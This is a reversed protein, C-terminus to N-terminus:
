LGLRERNYAVAKAVGEAFTYKPEWGLVTKAKACHLATHKIDGKREDGYVAPKDYGTAAAITDYVEQDSTQVGTGINFAENDGGTLARVNAEVVDEVFVYDRTKDGQGFITPQEGRLMMGSFIATVGAEGDPRQRPGYVNAYRLVTYRLGDNYNYLWLYKEITFKSVGYHSIPHISCEETAPIEDPEGYIAGGSSIYIVKEVGNKLGAELLYLSGVINTNADFGPDEVSKRVNMQAAHHNIVAPKERAFVDEVAERDTMDVEYFTAEANINEALGTSLNDLVVVEHGEAIYRDVVNSGIFGAGGTVLVKM